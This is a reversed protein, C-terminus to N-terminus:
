LVVEQLKTNWLIMADEGNDSYYGKRVGVSKFGFKEYLALAPKNSPRVELTMATAGRERAVKVLESFLKTGLGRGQCKPAIAVNTVQAEDLITWIGAYGVIEDDELILLYYANEQKTEQWFAERSWPIAFVEEEIAAVKDADEAKMQRFSIM